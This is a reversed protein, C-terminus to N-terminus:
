VAEVDDIDVEEFTGDQYEVVIGIQGGQDSITDHVAGHRENVKVRNGIDFVPKINDKLAALLKEANEICEDDGCHDIDQRISILKRIDIVYSKDSTDLRIEVKCDGGISNLWEFSFM